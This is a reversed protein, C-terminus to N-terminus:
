NAGPLRPPGPAEPRSDHSFAGTEVFEVTARIVDEDRMIFPHSVPVALFDVMGELRTSALSVTGDDPDPLYRSLLPNITDTGAIIGVPYTPAGLQAPLDEVGTGLQGGAPGLLLDFGPVSGLRDVIESGHNPPALMVVQGLETITHRDLYHRLLIGGMSHTVVHVRSARHARCQALGANVARAALVEVVADRSPYDINAVKYGRAAFAEALPAMSRATRALGHLLVVCDTARAHRSGSALLVIAMAALGRRITM